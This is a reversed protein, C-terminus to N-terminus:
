GFQISFWSIHLIDKLLVHLNLIYEPLAWGSLDQGPIWILLCTSM